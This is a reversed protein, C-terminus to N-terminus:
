LDVLTVYTVAVQGARDIVIAWRETFNQYLGRM